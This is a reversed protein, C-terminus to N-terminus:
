GDAHQVGLRYCWNVYELWKEGLRNRSAMLVPLYPMRATDSELWGRGDFYAAPGASIVYCPFLLLVAAVIASRIILKHRGHLRDDTATM